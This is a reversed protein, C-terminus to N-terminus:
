SVLPRHGRDEAAVAEAADRRQRRDLHLLEHLELPVAMDHVQHRGNHSRAGPQDANSTSAGRQRGARQGARRLHPPHLDPGVCVDDPRPAPTM